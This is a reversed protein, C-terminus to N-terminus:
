KTKENKIILDLKKLILASGQLNSDIIFLLAILIGLQPNLGFCLMSMSAVIMFYTFGRM